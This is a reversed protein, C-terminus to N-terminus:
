RTGGAWWVNETFVYQGDGYAAQINPNTTTDDNGYPCRLPFKGPNQLGYIDEGLSKLRRRRHARCKADRISWRGPTRATVAAWINSRRLRFAKWREGGIIYRGATKPIDGAGIKTVSGMVIRTLTRATIGALLSCPSPKPPASM